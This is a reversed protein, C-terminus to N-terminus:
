SHNPNMLGRSEETHHELENYAQKWSGKAITCAQTIQHIIRVRATIISKEHVASTAELLCTPNLVWNCEEQPCRNGTELDVSDFSANSEAAFTWLFFQVASLSPSVPFTGFEFISLLIAAGRKQNYTSNPRTVNYVRVTEHGSTIAEEL